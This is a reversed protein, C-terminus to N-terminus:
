EDEDEDEDEESHIEDLYRHYMNEVYKVMEEYYQSTTADEVVVERKAQNKLSAILREYFLDPTIGNQFCELWDMTPITINPIGLIIVAERVHQLFHQLDFGWKRHTGRTLGWCSAPLLLAPAKHNITGGVRMVPQTVARIIATTFIKLQTNTHDPGRLAVKIDWQQKQTYADWKAQTIPPIQTIM